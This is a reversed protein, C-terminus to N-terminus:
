GADRLGREYAGLIAAAMSEVARREALTLRDFRSPWDWRSRPQPVGAREYVVSVPVDLALAIGEATEDKVHMSHEGRGILRLTSYSVKGRSRQAAERPSLDLEMLRSLVLQQLPHMDPRIM